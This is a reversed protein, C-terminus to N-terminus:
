GANDILNKLHAIKLHRDFSYTTGSGDAYEFLLLSRQLLDRKMHSVINSGEANEAILLLIEALIEYQDAHLKKEDQLIKILKDAPIASLDNLNLGLESKLAQDTAEISDVSQGPTTLGTLNALIKGLVRGLQDIQRKLYDEQEM